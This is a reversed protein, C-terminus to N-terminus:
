KMEEVKLGEELDRLLLPPLSPTVVTVTRKEWDIELWFPIMEPDKQEEEM